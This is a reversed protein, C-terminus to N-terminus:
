VSQSTFSITETQADYTVVLHSLNELATVRSSLTSLSTNVSALDVRAQDDKVQISVGDLDFLKVDAM